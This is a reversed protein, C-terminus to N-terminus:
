SKPPRGRPRQAPPKLQVGRKALAERLMIEIQANVSRLQTAAMRELADYLEPEVRLAFSKKAAPKRLGNKNTKDAMKAKQAPANKRLFLM